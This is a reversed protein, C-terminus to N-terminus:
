ATNRSGLVSCVQGTEAVYQRENAFLDDNGFAVQFVCRELDKALTEPKNSAKM